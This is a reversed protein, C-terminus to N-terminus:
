SSQAQTECSMQQNQVPAAAQVPAADNSGGFLMQSVGHGITSGIAVSGATAAM